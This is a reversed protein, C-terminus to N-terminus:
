SQLYNAVIRDFCEKISCNMTCMKPVSQHEKLWVVQSHERYKRSNKGYQTHQGEWLVDGVCGIVDEHRKMSRRIFIPEDLDQLTCQTM